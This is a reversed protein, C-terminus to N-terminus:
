PVILNILAQSEKVRPTPNQFVNPDNGVLEILLGAHVQEFCGERKHALSSPVGFQMGPSTRFAAISGDWVIRQSAGDDLRADVRGTRLRLISNKALLSTEVPQSLFAPGRTARATISGAGIRM